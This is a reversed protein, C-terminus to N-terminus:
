RVGGPLDGGRQRAPCRVQSPISYILRKYKEMVATWAKGDGDLRARVLIADVAGDDPADPDPATSPIM